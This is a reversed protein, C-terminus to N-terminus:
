GLLALRRERDPYSEFRQRFLQDLKVGSAICAPSLAPDCGALHAEFRAELEPSLAGELYDAALEVLQKCALEGACETVEVAEQAEVLSQADVGRLDRVVRRCKVQGARGRSGKVLHVGAVLDVARRDAEVALVAVALEAEAAAAPDAHSRHQLRDLRM